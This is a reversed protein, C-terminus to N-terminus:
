GVEGARAVSTAVDATRPNRECTFHWYPLGDSVVVSWDDDALDLIQRRTFRQEISTLFRDHADQRMRRVSKGRYFEALPVRRRLPAPLLGGIRALPWYVGLTIVWVVLARVLPSRLGCLRRRVGDAVALVSRFYWPRNDLAYYLYVLFRPALPLLRRLAELAPVPTHHLVGLSYAVDFAGPAFPADLLDAMVFVADPHDRLNRRAVFIADSFDVAVIRGAYPAACVAYRGSGCGLDAVVADALGALEVLDFYQAFEARHEATVEDYRQWQDGFSTQVHASFEEGTGGARGLAAPARDAPLTVIVDDVVPYRAEGVVVADDTLEVERGFLRSLVALKDAYYATAPAPTTV